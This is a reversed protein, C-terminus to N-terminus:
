SCRTPQSSAPHSLESVEFDGEVAVPPNVLREEERLKVALSKAAEVASAIWSELSSPHAPNANPKFGACSLQAMRNCYAGWSRSLQLAEIASGAPSDAYSVM